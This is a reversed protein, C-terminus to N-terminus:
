DNLKVEIEFDVGFYMKLETKIIAIFEIVDQYTAEGSNEIFNAHMPSIRLGKYTFGKLGLIDISQGARCSLDESHYNKFICGCTKANMPQTSNRYKLYDKIVSSVNPDHGRHILVASLIVDGKRLVNNARYKFTNKENKIEKLEGTKSMVRFSKVVESIEGLGTGANMVIAGGLSAPVGTFVEWGKLGLRSAASSLVPLSCSAPLDYEEQYTELIKKNFQFDLKIYPVDSEEKLLLNAGWGLLVYDDLNLLLYRLGDESKAIFLDGRAKLKMTSM